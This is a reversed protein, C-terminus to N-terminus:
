RSFVPGRLMPRRKCLRPANSSTGPSGVTAPRGHVHPAQAPGAPACGPEQHETGGLKDRACCLLCELWAATRRAGRAVPPRRQFRASGAGVHGWCALRGRPALRRRAPFAQKSFLNRWLVLACAVAALALALATPARWGGRGGEHRCVAGSQEGQQRQTGGRWACADAMVAALPCRCWSRAHLSCTDDWACPPSM